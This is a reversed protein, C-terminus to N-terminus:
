RNGDERYDPNDSDPDQRHEDVGECLVTIRWGQFPGKRRTEILGSLRLNRRERDSLSDPFRGHRTIYSLEKSYYDRLHIRTEKELSQM